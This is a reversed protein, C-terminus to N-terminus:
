DVQNETKAITDDGIKKSVNSITRGVIVAAM